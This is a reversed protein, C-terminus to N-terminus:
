RPLGDEGGILFAVTTVCFFMSWCVVYAVVVLLVIVVSKLIKDNTRKAQFFATYLTFYTCTNPATVNCKM